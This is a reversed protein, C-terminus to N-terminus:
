RTRTSRRIPGYAGLYKARRARVVDRRLAPDRSVSLDMRLLAYASGFLVLTIVAMVIWFIVEGGALAVLTVGGTATGAMVMTAAAWMAPTTRRERRLRRQVDNMTM